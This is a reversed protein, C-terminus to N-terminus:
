SQVAPTPYEETGTEASRMWIEGPQQVLLQQKGERQQTKPELRVTTHELEWQLQDSLAMRGQGKLWRQTGIGMKRVCWEREAALVQSQELQWCLTM